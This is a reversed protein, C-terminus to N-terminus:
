STRVEHRDLCAARMDRRTQSGGGVPALILRDREGYAGSSGGAAIGAVGTLRNSDRYPIDGAEEGDLEDLADLKDLEDLEDLEDLADLERHQRHPRNEVDAEPRAGAM